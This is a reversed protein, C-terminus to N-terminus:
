KSATNLINLLLNQINIQDMNQPKFKEIYDYLGILNNECSESKIKSLCVSLDEYIKKERLEEKSM